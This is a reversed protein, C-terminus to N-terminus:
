RNQRTVKFGPLKDIRAFYSGLSGRKIVVTGGPSLRGPVPFDDNQTWAAGNDLTFTVRGDSLHGISTVKATIESLQEVDGKDGDGLLATGGIHLGFLSRRTEHIQQQDVIVIQRNQQATELAAVERDYCALRLDAQEITRCHTLREFQPPPTPKKPNAAFATPMIIVLATVAAASKLKM